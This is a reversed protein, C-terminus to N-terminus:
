VCSGSYSKSSKTQFCIRYFVSIGSYVTSKPNKLIWGQGENMHDYRILVQFNYQDLTSTLKWGYYIGIDIDDLM